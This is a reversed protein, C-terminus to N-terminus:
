LSLLDPLTNIHRSGATDEETSLPRRSLPKTLFRRLIQSRSVCVSVLSVMAGVGYAAAAAAPSAALAAAYPDAAYMRGYSCFVSTCTESLFLVRSTLFRKFRRHMSRSQGSDSVQRQLSGGGSGGSSDSESGGDASHLSVCHLREVSVVCGYMLWSFRLTLLSFFSM